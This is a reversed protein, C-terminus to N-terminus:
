TEGKALEAFPNPRGAAAPAPPKLRQQAALTLGFDGALARYQAILSAKPTAGASTAQALAAHLACLIALPGLAAESLLRNAVLIQGLRMWEDVALQNTLWSPPQPVAEVRPLEVHEPAARSPRFTGALLKLHDPKRRNM